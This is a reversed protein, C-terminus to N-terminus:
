SAALSSLKEELERFFLVEYTRITIGIPSLPSVYYTGHWHLISKDGQPIVEIFSEGSMPSGPKPRYRLQKGEIIQDVTYSVANAGWPFTEVITGGETVDGSIGSYSSPWFGNNEGELANVLEAWLEEPGLDSAIHHSFRLNKDFAIAKRSAGFLALFAIIMSLLQFRTKVKLEM